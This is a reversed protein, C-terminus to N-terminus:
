SQVNKAIIGRARIPESDNARSASFLPIIGFLSLEIKRHIQGYTNETGTIKEDSNQKGLRVPLRVPMLGTHKKLPNLDLDVLQPLEKKKSLRQAGVTNGTSTVGLKLLTTTSFRFFSFALYSNILSILGCEWPPNMNLQQM